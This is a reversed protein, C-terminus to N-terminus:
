EDSSTSYWNEVNLNYIYHEDTGEEYDPNWIESWIGSGLQNDEHFLVKKFCGTMQVMDLTLLHYWHTANVKQRLHVAVIFVDIFNDKEGESSDWHDETGVVIKTYKGTDWTRNFEHLWKCWWKNESTDDDQLRVRYGGYTWDEITTNWYWYNLGLRSVFDRAVTNNYETSYSGEAYGMSGGGGGSSYEVDPLLSDYLTFLTPYDIGNVQRDSESDNPDYVMFYSTKPQYYVKFKNGGSGFISDIFVYYKYSGYTCDNAEITIIVDDYGLDCGWYDLEVGVVLAYGIVSTENYFRGSLKLSPPGWTAGSGYWLEKCYWQNPDFTRTDEYEWDTGNWIYNFISFDDLYNYLDSKTIPDLAKVPLMAYMCTLAFIGILIIGCTTKAKEKM